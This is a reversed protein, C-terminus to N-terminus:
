RHGLCGTEGGREPSCQQAMRVTTVEPTPEKSTPELGPQLNWDWNSRAINISTVKTHAPTSQPNVDDAMASLSISLSFVLTVALRCTANARYFWSQHMM